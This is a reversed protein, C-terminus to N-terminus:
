VFELADILLHDYAKPFLAEAAATLAYLHSPRGVSRRVGSTQVLGDRELLALHQRVGVSGIGLDDSLEGATMPGKRRLLLLIQQRTEGQERHATLM